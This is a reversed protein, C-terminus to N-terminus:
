KEDKINYHKLNVFSIKPLISEESYGISTKLNLEFRKLVEDIEVKALAIRNNLDKNAEETTHTIIAVKKDAKVKRTNAM